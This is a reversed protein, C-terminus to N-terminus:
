LRAGCKKCKHAYRGFRLNNGNVYKVAGCFRCVTKYKICGNSMERPTIMSSVFWVGFVNGTEDVTRHGLEM